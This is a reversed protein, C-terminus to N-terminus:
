LSESIEELKELRRIYNELHKVEHVQDHLQYHMQQQLLVAIVSTAETDGHHSAISNIVVPHEKYKTALEVGIEVHSGEM